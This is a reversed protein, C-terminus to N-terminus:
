KFFIKCEPVITTDFYLLITTKAKVYTDSMPSCTQQLLLHRNNHIKQRGLFVVEAERKESGGETYIYIYIQLYAATEFPFRFGWRNEKIRKDNVWRAFPLKDNTRKNVFFSISTDTELCVLYVLPVQGDITYSLTANNYPSKTMLEYHQRRHLSSALHHLTLRNM